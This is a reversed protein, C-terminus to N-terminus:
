LLEIEARHLKLIGDMEFQKLIRSIVVRTTGLEYALQQHSLKIISTDEKEKRHNLYEMVRKDIHDFAVSEFTELLEDYRNRFTKIVFNNWSNYKKQWQTIYRTPIALIKTESVAVAQSPSQNNYFCASLSMMCTQSPDVYYLLIERDEKAQFVRIHGSLVIPLVKVYEGERVITEGKQFTLVQCYELIEERLAKESIFDLVKFIETESTM